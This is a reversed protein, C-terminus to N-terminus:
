KSGGSSSSSSDGNSIIERIRAMFQGGATDIAVARQEQLHVRWQTAALTANRLEKAGLPTRSFKVLKNLEADTFNATFYQAWAASAETADYPSAVTTLFKDVAAEFAKHQEPSLEPMYNRLQGVMQDVKTHAEKNSDSRAQDLVENLGAAKVLAAVCQDRTLDPAIAVVPGASLMLLSACTITARFHM